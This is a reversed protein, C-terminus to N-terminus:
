SAEGRISARNTKVVELITDLKAHAGDVSSEVGALRAEVNGLRNTHEAVKSTLCTGDNGRLCETLKDVSQKMQVQNATTAVAAASAVKIAAIDAKDSLQKGIVIAAKTAAIETARVATDKAEEAKRVGSDVKENVTPVIQECVTTNNDLKKSNIWHGYMTTIWNLIVTLLTGVAVIIAATGNGDGDAFLPM